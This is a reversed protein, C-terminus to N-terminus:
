GLVHGLRGRLQTLAANVRSKVTGVPVGLVAAVERYKLGQETVLLFVERQAEPLELTAERVKEALEGVELREEAAEERGEILDAITAGEDNVRVDASVAKPAAKRSRYHDIFLNRAVAFLFTRFTAEPRYRARYRVVRLFTEQTLDEAIGRDYCMRYFHNTLAHQYRGVLADFAEADGEQFAVM